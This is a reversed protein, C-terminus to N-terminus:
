HTLGWKECGPLVWRPITPLAKTTTNEWIGDKLMSSQLRQRMDLHPDEWTQGEDLVSQTNDSCDTHSVTVKLPSDGATFVDTDFNATGGDVLRSSGTAVVTKELDEEQSSSQRPECQSKPDFGSPCYPAFVASAPDKILLVEKGPSECYLCISTSAEMASAKLGNKSPWAENNDGETLAQSTDQASRSQCLPLQLCHLRSAPGLFM